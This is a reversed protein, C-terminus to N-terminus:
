IGLSSSTFNSNDDDRNHKWATLYPNLSLSPSSIIRRRGAAAAASELEPVVERRKPPPNPPLM